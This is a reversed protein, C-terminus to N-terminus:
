FHFNILLIDIEKLNFNNNININIFEFERNNLIDLKNNEFNIKIFSWDIEIWKIMDIILWLKNNWFIIIYFIILFNNNNDIFIENM